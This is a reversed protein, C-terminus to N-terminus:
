RKATILVFFTHRNKGATFDGSPRVVFIIKSKTTPSPPPQFEQVPLCQKMLSEEKIFYGFCHTSAILYQGDSPEM